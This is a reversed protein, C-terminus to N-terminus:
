LNPQSLQPSNYEDSPIIAISYWLGSLQQTRPNYMLSRIGMNSVSLWKVFGNRIETMIQFRQFDRLKQYKFTSVKTFNHRSVLPNISCFFLSSSWIEFLSPYWFPRQLFRGLPICHLLCQSTKIHLQLYSHLGHTYLLISFPPHLPKTTQATFYKM